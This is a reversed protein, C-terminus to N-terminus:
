NSRSLESRLTSLRARRPTVSTEDLNLPPDLQNLVHRELDALSDPDIVAYVAVSLHEAIWATLALESPRSMLKPGEVVLGLQERLVSALALRFTSGRIRGRVHGRIRKRLTNKGTKGSPWKTAGTLGAYIRGPAVRHGLGRSLMEAGRRDVWWSYLGPRDLETLGSPWVSAAVINPRRDLADLAAEVERATARDQRNVTGAEAPGIPPPSGAAEGCRPVVSPKRAPVLPANAYWAIQNGVGRITATPSEVIAGRQLLLPALGTRYAGGAHIEFTMGALRGLRRGLEVVVKQAWERRADTTIDRLALDYTAIM